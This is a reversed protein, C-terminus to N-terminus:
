DKIDPNGIQGLDWHLDGLDRTRLRGLLVVEKLVGLLALTLDLGNESRVNAEAESGLPMLLM